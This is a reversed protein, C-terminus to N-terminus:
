ERALAQVPDLRAAARAPLFGFVIGILSSAAFAWLATEPPFELPIQPLFRGAAEGAGFALAVGLVGGTLCVLVAEILFQTVIDSRRAGVSMRVGIERTRETVSVLMINMVGIGGVLLSIVAISAILITLTETTSTITSRITDSNTLFFDRSGNRAIMIETILREALAMDFDDAIRVSISDIDSQGTLRVAVTTYPLYLGITRPGFSIGTQQVIGIVRMPVRDILITQGVPDSGDPFLTAAADADLVVVQDRRAVAGADFPQGATVRFAGIDFYGAGVGQVRASTSVSGRTVTAQTQVQPSASVAFPQAALAAADDPGLTTIAAARRDGFGTGPRIDITSTGIASIDALVRERSGTGLAVVSVVAAIGIIIGLMTLFTRLRHAAMSRVAMRLAEALRDLAAGVPRRAPRAVQMRARGAVPGTDRLIRGDSIEVTRGVRAALAPDHTVIVITHGQANLETLLAILEAGSRTDLAGTPEDALIVEGGNILARAVSVRQQQGGSLQAPRSALKGGLGLRDLLEAARRRRGGRPAGAYVAPMEVNAVADFEPLLQYRQFIFGFHERRLRARGAEDLTGVDQGAFRYTGSSPRDLCGLINMLTSKGSGSAGVIAVMEGPWIDLDIDSLVAVEGDGAPYVRGVGRLSILPGEM